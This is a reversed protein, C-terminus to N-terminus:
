KSLMVAKAEIHKGMRALSTAAKVKGFEHLFNWITSLVLKM